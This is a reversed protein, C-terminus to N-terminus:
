LGSRALASTEVFKERSQQFWYVRVTIQALRDAEVETIAINRTFRPEDPLSATIADLPPANLPTRATPSADVLGSPPNFPDLNFRDVRINEILERGLQTAVSFNGATDGAVAGYTLVGMVGLAAISLVAISFMVEVLTFGSHKKRTRRM